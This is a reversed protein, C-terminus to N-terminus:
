RKRQPCYRRLLSTTDMARSFAAQHRTLHLTADAWPVLRGDLWLYAPTAGDHFFGTM